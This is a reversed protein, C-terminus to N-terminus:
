RAVPQGPRAMLWLDSAWGTNVSAKATIGFNKMLYTDIRSSLLAKRLKRAVHQLIKQIAGSHFLSREDAKTALHTIRIIGFFSGGQLRM